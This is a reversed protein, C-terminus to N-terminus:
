RRFRGRRSEGKGHERLRKFLMQRFEREAQYLKYVKAMPLVAKYKAHYEKKLDLMKQEQIIQSDTLEKLENQSLSDPNKKMKGYKEMYDKRLADRKKHYENFVPWFIQAEQQTLDLEKTIFASQQALIQEKMNKGVPKDQALLSTVAALCAIILLVSWKQFILRKTKM